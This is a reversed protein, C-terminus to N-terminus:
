SRARKRSQPNPSPRTEWGHVTKLKTFVDILRQDTTHRMRYEIPDVGVAAAVENIMGEVRSTRSRAPRAHAHQPDAHRGHVAVRGPRAAGRQARERAVNPVKDYAWATSVPAVWSYHGHPSRSRRRETRSRARRCGPSCRRRARPRRLPRDPPLRGPVRGHQREADLGVQMDALQPFSRPRGRCTRRACGSCAQGAQRGGALPDGRGGRRRGPRPELPRLPGLRRPHPRRRQGAVTELMSALMKRLPQPYQTHAWVYVTGDKRVDAVAVSPGIPAHKDYPWVYTASMRKAARRSRPRRRARTRASRRRPPAHLGELPAGQLPEREGAAGGLRDVEDHRRLQPRPRSRKTSTDPRRGRRPQGQRRAATNPFASRTSSASRSSRRASRRRSCSRPRPAHGPLRSTASTPRRAPRRDAPDDRMPQSPASVTYQSIPKTPPNGGVTLGGVLLNGTVPITLNLAPEAVLEGYTVSKGGGSVVGNKVTLSGVPVGLQTSALSLLAQYIYAAVKRLNPDGGGMYGASFGGDPTRDTDGMVVKTIASYPVNLEEALIQAYATSASGQGIEVKGTRMLITNDAHIELWSSPLTPDLTAEGRKAAKAGRGRRRHQPRRRARRRGQRVEPALADRRLRRRQKEEIASM